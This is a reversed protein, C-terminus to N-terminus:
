TYSSDIKTQPTDRKATFMTKPSKINKELSFASQGNESKEELSLEVNDYFGPITIHNNEGHRLL